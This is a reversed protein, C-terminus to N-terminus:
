WGWNAAFCTLLGFVFGTSVEVAKWAWWNFCRSLVMQGAFTALMVLPAAWIPGLALPPAGLLLGVLGRWLWGKGDGYGLSFVASSTLGFILVRWWIGGFLVLLATILAPGLFRRVWKGVGKTGGLAFTLGSITPILIFCWENM